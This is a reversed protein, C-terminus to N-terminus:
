LFFYYKKITFNWSRQNRYVKRVVINTIDAEDLIVNIGSFGIILDNEKACFYTSNSNKLENELINYNWFNDFDSELNNKIIELDDLNMPVISLNTQEM